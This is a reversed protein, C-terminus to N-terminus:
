DYLRWYNVVFKRNKNENISNDLYYSDNPIHTTSLEEIICGNKSTMQHESGRQIVYISGKSLNHTKDDVVLELDGSILIFTEEKIKHFQTPHKQEPLL